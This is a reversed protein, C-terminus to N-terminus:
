VKEVYLKFGKGHINIIQVKPDDKLFKRLKTVYVDMSRSSFYSDDHWIAKLAFNRDLVDNQNICLLKLLEAEKTTLKQHDGKFELSQSKYNFHYLGVQFEDAGENAPRSRRMVANIRVLLEETNFPKTIYDDGGKNFGEIIDEKMSKATLFIIPIHKNTMRIEKAVTFGDKEPMMVDLICLDFDKKSFTDFAKKGNVCLEVEFGKALLFDKMLMGLSDDDEALLVRPKTTEM